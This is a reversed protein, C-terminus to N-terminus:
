KVEWGSSFRVPGPLLMGAQKVVNGKALLSVIWSGESSAETMKVRGFVTRDRACACVAACLFGWCFFLTM